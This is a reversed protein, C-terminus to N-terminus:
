SFNIFLSTIYRLQSPKSFNKSCISCNKNEEPKVILDANDKNANIFKKMGDSSSDNANYENKLAFKLYESAVSKATINTENKMQKIAIEALTQMASQDQDNQGLNPEVNSPKYIVNPNEISDEQNKLNREVLDSNQSFTESSNSESFSSHRSKSTPLYNLYIEPQKEIIKEEYHQTIGSFSSTRHKQSSVGHLDYSLYVEQDSKTSSLSNTRPKQGFYSQENSIQIIDDSKPLTLFRKQTFNTENSTLISSEIKNIIEPSKPYYVQGDNKTFAGNYSIVSESTNSAPSLDLIPSDNIVITSSLDMPKFNEESRAIKNQTIVSSIKRKRIVINTPLNGELNQLNYDNKSTNVVQKIILPTNIEQRESNKEALKIVSRQVNEQFYTEKIQTDNEPKELKESDTSKQYPYTLPRVMASKGLYQSFNDQSTTAYIEIAESLHRSTNFNVSPDNLIKNKAFNTNTVQTIQEANKLFKDDRLIPFENINFSSTSTSSYNDQSNQPPPTSKQALSLLCRAAEHDQLRTSEDTLYFKSNDNYNYIISLNVQRQM